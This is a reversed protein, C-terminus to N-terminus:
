LFPQNGAASNTRGGNSIIRLLTRGSNWTSSRTDSTVTRSIWTSWGAVAIQCPTTSVRTRAATQTLCVCVSGRGREPGSLEPRYWVSPTSRSTVGTTGSQGSGSSRRWWVLWFPPRSIVSVCSFPIAPCWETNIRGKKWVGFINMLTPKICQM